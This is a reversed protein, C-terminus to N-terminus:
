DVQLRELSKAFAKKTSEYGADQIWLKTTIFRAKSLQRKNTFWAPRLITYDLDSAEIIAASKRYPELVSGYKEGPVENYIGGNAGLILVNSM